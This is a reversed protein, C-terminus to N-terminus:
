DTVKSKRYVVIGDSNKVPYYIGDNTRIISYSDGGDLLAGNMVPVAKGEIALCRMEMISVESVCSSFGILMFILLYRM